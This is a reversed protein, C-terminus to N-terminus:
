LKWFLNNNTRPVVSILTGTERDGQRGTPPLPVKRSLAYTGTLLSSLIGM